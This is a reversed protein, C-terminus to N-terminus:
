VLKTGSLLLIGALAPRMLMEPARVATRSGIIVGPISGALLSGLVAFDVTGLALHGVSAVAVLVAAHFIDTGILQAAKVGPYAIILAALVLTGSGVSTLALMLGVAAGVAVNVAPRDTPPRAARARGARGRLVYADVLVSIAVIILVVGLARAVFADTAPSVGLRHLVIVGVIAAPISGIALQGVLRHNVTGQRHHVGAGVAKTVASFLLDTGVAFVPRVGFLLILAPTTLSGGGMGTMGVLFGIVLGAAAIGWDM